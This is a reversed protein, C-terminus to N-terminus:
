LQQDLLYKQAFLVTTMFLFDRNSKKNFLHGENNALLYWYGVGNNKLAAIMQEGESPPVRYDNKGQAMLIPIKIRAANNLPSIKDFLQAVAPDREDGYEIRLLPRKFKDNESKVFTLLSTPASLVVVGRLRDSFQAACALALFGGYSEGRIMVRNSDLEPRMKVWDLM